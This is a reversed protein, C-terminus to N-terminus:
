SIKSKKQSAALSDFSLSQLANCRFEIKGNERLDFSTPTFTEMIDAPSGSVAADIATAAVTTPAAAM